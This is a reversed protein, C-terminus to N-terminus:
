KTLMEFNVKFNLNPITQTTDFSLSWFSASLDQEQDPIFNYSKPFFQQNKFIQTETTSVNPLKAFKKEAHYHLV